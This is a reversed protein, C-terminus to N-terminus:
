FYESLANDINDYDWYPIEILTIDNRSCYDRLDADRQQQKELTRNGKHFVPVYKYHQEGNYEIAYKKGNFNPIYFDLIFTKIQYKYENVKIYKETKYNINKKDLYKKVEQEGNSVICNPCGSKRSLHNGSSPSFIINCKKCIIKIRNKIGKYKVLSYDYKDGHIRQAEYIFQETTKMQDLHTKKITCKKCGHGSLFNNPTVEIYNNCKVCFISVNTKNNIYNVKDYRFLDSKHIIKAKEIFDNTSSVAFPYCKNCNFGMLHLYPMQEFYQNCKTCFIKVPHRKNKYEVKDYRYRDGHIEKSKQLFLEADTIGIGKCNQCRINKLVTYPTTKILKGCKKCIITIQKKSSQYEVLSYDFLDYGYKLVCRNVFEKTNSKKTGGCIQCGRNCLHGNPKLEFVGHIPCIIKVEKKNGVYEVLSYDYRNGHLKKSKEIFESTTLRKSM